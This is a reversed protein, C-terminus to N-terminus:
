WEEIFPQDPHFQYHELDVRNGITFEVGEIELSLRQVNASEDDSLGIQGKANIVRHWPLNYKETMSHLIRVVQRAGRPSGALRAIQGYTMVKGPPIRKIIDIARQTFPNM